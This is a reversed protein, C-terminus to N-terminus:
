KRVVWKKGERVVNNERRYCALADGFGDAAEDNLYGPSDMYFDFNSNPVGEFGTRVMTMGVEFGRQYDTIHEARM